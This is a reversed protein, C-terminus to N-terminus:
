VKVNEARKTKVLRKIWLYYGTLPLTAGFLSALFWLVRTVIGGFSGTHVSFIWGRIKGSSPLEDYAVYEVIEGTRPNFKYNDSGRTNGYHNNAVTALGNSISISINSPNKVALTDYVKQWQIYKNDVIMQREGQGSNRHGSNGQQSTEVGFVKYFGTRYWDFSWTLGTLAMILLLLVVYMGGAVHLGYCLRQWGNRFSIKLRNKLLYM